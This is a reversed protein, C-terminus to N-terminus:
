VLEFPLPRIYYIKARERLWQRRRFAIVTVYESHKDAAKTIWCAFRTRQTSIGDTAQRITGYKRVLRMVPM